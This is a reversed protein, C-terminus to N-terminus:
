RALWREYAGQCIEIAEEIGLTEMQDIFSDWDSEFNLQGVIFKTYSTSALKEVDTMIEAYREAEDEKLILNPQVEYYYKSQEEMIAPLNKDVSEVWSDYDMYNPFTILDIGFQRRGEVAGNNEWSTIEEMYHRNGDEDKYFTVGEIGWNMLEMGEETCMYNLMRIIRDAYPSDASICYYYLYPDRFGAIGQGYESSMPYLPVYNYESTEAAWMNIEDQWCNFVGVKGAQQLAVADQYTRTLFQKDLLGETYLKNLYMLMDKVQEQQQYPTYIYEGDLRVWREGYTTGFANAIPIFPSIGAGLPIVDNGLGKFATLVDYFEEVTTPVDMGVQDLMDQNIVLMTNLASTDIKPVFWINGDDDKLNKANPDVSEIYKMLSPALTEMYDTLNMVIGEDLYASVSDVGQVNVLDPLNGTMLMTNLKTAYDGAPIVQFEFNVKTRRSLEQLILQDSNLPAYQYDMTMITITIEECDSFDTEWQMEGTDPNTEQNSPLTVNVSPQTDDGGTSCATLAFVVTLALLMAVLSKLTHKKM